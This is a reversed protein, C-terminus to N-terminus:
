SFATQTDKHRAISLMRNTRLVELCVMVPLDELESDAIFNIFVGNRTDVIHKEGPLCDIKRIEDNKNKESIRLYGKVCGIVLESMSGYTEITIIFKENTAILGDLFIGSENALVKGLKIKTDFKSVHSTSTITDVQKLIKM